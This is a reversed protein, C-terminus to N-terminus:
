LRLKVARGLRELRGGAVLAHIVRQLHRPSVALLSATDALAIPQARTQAGMDELYRLYREELPCLQNRAAERARAALKDALGRSLLGVLGPLQNLRSRLRDRDMRWLRGPTVATLTCTARHEDRFVEVDGFFTGPGSFCILLTRDDWDSAEVKFRGELVCWLHNVPEGQLLIRMGAEVTSVAGGFPKLVVEPDDLFRRYGHDDLPTEMAESYSM